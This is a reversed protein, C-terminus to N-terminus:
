HGEIEVIVFDLVDVELVQLDDSSFNLVGELLQILEEFADIIQDHPVVVPDASRLVSNQDIVDDDPSVSPPDEFLVELSVCFSVEDHSVVFDVKVSQVIDLVSESFYDNREVWIYRM